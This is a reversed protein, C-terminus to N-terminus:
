EPHPSSGDCEEVTIKHDAAYIIYSDKGVNTSFHKHLNEGTHFDIVWPYNFAKSFTAIRDEVNGTLWYLGAYKVFNLEIPANFRGLSLDIM